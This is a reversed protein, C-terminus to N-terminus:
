RCAFNVDNVKGGGTIVATERGGGKCRKAKVKYKGDDLDPFWYCGNGDTTTTSAGRRGKKKLKVTKGALLNGSADTVRGSICGTPPTSDAPCQCAVTTTTTTSTTTTTTVPITTTTTTTIGTVTISCDKSDANGNADIPAIGVLQMAVIETPIGGIEGTSSNLNLGAPLTGAIIRWEQIPKNAQLMVSYPQNLIADPLPCDTQIKVCDNCPVCNSCWQEVPPMFSPIVIQRTAFQMENKSPPDEDIRGDDDNDIGDVRDENAFFDGDDNAAFIFQSLWGQIQLLYSPYHTELYNSLENMYIPYKERNPFDFPLLRNSNAMLYKSEISVARPIFTCPSLNKPLGCFWSVEDAILQMESANPNNTLNIRGSGDENMGWIDLDQPNNWSNGTADSTFVIMGNSMEPVYDNGCHWTLRLNDGVPLPLTQTAWNPIRFLQSNGKWTRTSSFIVDNGNNSFRAGGTMQIPNPNPPYTSGLTLQVLETAVTGSWNAVFVEWDTGDRNRAATFIIKTGDPSFGPHGCHFIVPSDCTGGGLTIPDIVRPNTGDNKMIHIREYYEWVTTIQVPVSCQSVVPKTTLCSGDKCTFIIESGDPSWEPHRAPTCRDPDINGCGYSTVQVWTTEDGMTSLPAKYIEFNGTADSSFVVSQGDPSLAPHNDISPADTLRQIGTGDPNMSYIDWNAPADRDSVFLILDNSFANGSVLFSMLFLSILFGSTKLFRGSIM